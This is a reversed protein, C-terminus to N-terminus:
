SSRFACGTRGQGTNDQGTRGQGARVHGTTHGAQEDQRGQETEDQGAGEHRDKLTNDHGIEHGARNQETRAQCTRAKLMKLFLSM